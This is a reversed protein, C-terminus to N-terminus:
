LVLVRRPEADNIDYGDNQPWTDFERKYMSMVYSDGKNKKRAVRLLHRFYEVRTDRPLVLGFLAGKSIIDIYYNPADSSSEKFKAYAFAPDFGREYAFNMFFSYRARDELVPQLDEYDRGTPLASWTFGSVRIDTDQGSSRLVGIEVNNEANVVRFVGPTSGKRVIINRIFARVIYPVGFRDLVGRRVEVLPPAERRVTQFRPDRNVFKHGCAPCVYEDGVRKMVFECKPCVVHKREFFHKDKKPKVGEKLTIDLRDAVHGFRYINAGFDLVVCDTKGTEPCVRLGRGISQLYVRHSKTPRAHFICEVSPEDFGESIVNVSSVVDIRGERLDLYTKEREASPTDGTVVAARYGRETFVRAIAGAHDVTVGFSITRLGKAKAEWESVMNGILFHQNVAANLEHIEFDGNVTRVGKLDIRKQSWTYHKVPVLRGADILEGIQPGEVIIDYNNGLGETSKTRFPTATLGLILASPYLKLVKEYSPAVSGHAEDLIVLDADPKRDRRNLTQITTVQVPNELDREYDRHYAAPCFGFHSEIRAMTQRVLDLKNVIFLVRWGDNICGAVITGAIVTKGSGTPAYLLVRRFGAAFRDYLKAISERQDGFLVPERTTYTKVTM